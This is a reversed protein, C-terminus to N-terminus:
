TSILESVVEAAEEDSSPAFFRLGSAKAKYEHKDIFRDVQDLFKDPLGKVPRVLVIGAQSSNYHHRVAHLNESTRLTHLEITEMSAYWGSTIAACVGNKGTLIDVEVVRRKGEVVVGVGKPHVYREFDLKLNVKLMEHVSQRIQSTDRSLFTTKKAKEEPELVVASFYIQNVVSEASEGSAFEGETFSLHQSLDATLHPHPLGSRQADALANRVRDLLYGINESVGSGYVCEFKEFRHLLRFADLKGHSEAIIGILFAQPSDLRPAFLVGSWRGEYAPRPPDFRTIPLPPQNM